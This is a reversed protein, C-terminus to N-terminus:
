TNMRKEFIVSRWDYWKSKCSYFMQFAIKQSSFAEEIRFLDSLVNKPFLDSINPGYVQLESKNSPLWKNIYEIKGSRSNIGKIVQLSHM